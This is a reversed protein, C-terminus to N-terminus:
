SAKDLDIGGILEVRKRMIDLIFLFIEHMMQTETQQNYEMEDDAVIASYVQQLKFLLKSIVVKNFGLNTSQMSFIVKFITRFPSDTRFVSCLEKFNNIKSEQDFMAKAIVVLTNIVRQNDKMERKGFIAYLLLM